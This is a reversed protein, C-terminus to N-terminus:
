LVRVEKEKKLPVSPRNKLGQFCGRAKCGFGKFDEGAPLFRYHFGSFSQSRCLSHFVVLLHLSCGGLFRKWPYFSGCFCSSVSRGDNRTGGKTNSAKRPSAIGYIGQQWPSDGVKGQRFTAMWGSIWQVGPDAFCPKKIRVPSSELWGIGPFPFSGQFPLLNPGLFTQPRLHARENKLPASIYSCDLASRAELTKLVLM